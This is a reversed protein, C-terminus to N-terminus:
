IRQPYEMVYPHGKHVADMQVLDLMGTLSTDRPNPPARPAESMASVASERGSRGTLSYDGSVRYEDARTPEVPSSVQKTASGPPSPAPRFLDTKGTSPSYRRTFEVRIPPLHAENIIPGSINRAHGSSAPSQRGSASKPDRISEAKKRRKSRWILFFVVAAVLGLVGLLVGVVIATTPAADKDKNEGDVSGEGSVSTPKSPDKTKSPAAPDPASSSAGEPPESQDEDMECVDDDNCSYGYPCCEEGCRQLKGDLATTKLGASPFKDPDQASVDCTLPSIRGCDEGDPCCIATTGGALAVCTSKAPCCFNDPLESPCSTLKQSACTDKREFLLRPPVAHASTLLSCLLLARLPPPLAIM